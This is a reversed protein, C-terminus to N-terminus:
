FVRRGRRGRGICTGKVRTINMDVAPCALLGLSLIPASVSLGADALDLLFFSYGERGTIRAPVLAHGALSGLVVYELIGNLVYSDDYKVAEITGRTESPNCFAPFAILASRADAAQTMIGSLIDHSGAALMIEQALANTFIIGGPSADVECIHKLIVCLASMDQGIGGCREPLTAGLIGVEHAKTLVTEFFPGFPYRDNADRNASLEKVAFSHALDEFSKLECKISTLM